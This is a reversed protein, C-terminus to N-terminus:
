MKIFRGYEMENNQYVAKLVYIGKSLKSINIGQGNSYNNIANVVQGDISLIHISKIVANSKTFVYVVDNAPNPAITFGPKNDFKVVRIESYKFSGDKDMMKLRYFATGSVQHHVYKYNNNSGTAMVTAIDKFNSGDNSYQIIYKSANIEEASQWDIYATNGNATCTFSSLKVPVVGWVKPACLNMPPLTPDIQTFVNRQINPLNMWISGYNLDDYGSRGTAWLTGDAKLIYSFNEGCFIDIANTAVLTPTSKHIITGDGLQGYANYGWAYVNRNSDLAMCLAGDNNASLAVIPAASVPFTIKTPPTITDSAAGLGLVPVLGFVMPAKGFSYVDGDSNLAFAACANGKIDIIKSLGALTVPIMSNTKQFWGGGGTIKVTSDSLLIVTAAYAGVAIARVANTIGTMQVPISLPNASTGGYGLEGLVNKGAGWVTGDTKVFVIHSLGADIFKVNALVQQPISTFGYVNPGWVWATQDVKIVASLYGTTYFKVNTMSIVATPMVSSVHTGNGLEGNNNSGWAYLQNSDGCVTFATYAGVQYNHAKYWSRGGFGDGTMSNQAYLDNSFFILLLTMTLLLPKRM